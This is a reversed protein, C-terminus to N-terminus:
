LIYITAGKARVVSAFRSQELVDSLQAPNHRPSCHTLVIHKNNFRDANDNLHQLHIHGRDATIQPALTDDWITCEVILIPVQLLTDHQLVGDITTDGTYAILPAIVEDSVQEGRMAADRIEENSKGRFHAKLSRKQEFLCYAVAEVRHVTRFCRVIRRKGLDIPEANADTNAAILKFTKQAKEAEKDDDDDTCGLDLACLSQFYQKYTAHYVSPM